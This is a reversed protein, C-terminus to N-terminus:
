ENGQLLLQQVQVQLTQLTFSFDSDSQGIAPRKARGKTAVAVHDPLNRFLSCKAIKM